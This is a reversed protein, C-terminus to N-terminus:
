RGIRKTLNAFGVAPMALTVIAISRVSSHSLSFRSSINAWISLTVPPSAATSGQTPRQTDAPTTASACALIRWHRSSPTRGMAGRWSWAPRPASGPRTAVLTRQTGMVPVRMCLSAGPSGCQKPAWRAAVEVGAIHTPPPVNVSAFTSPLGVFISTWARAANGRHATAVQEAIAAM